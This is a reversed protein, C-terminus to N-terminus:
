RVESLVGPAGRRSVSALHPEAETRDTSKLVKGPVRHFNQWEGAGSLAKPPWAPPHGQGKCGLSIRNLRQWIGSPFCLPYDFTEFSSDPGVDGRQQQTVFQGLSM